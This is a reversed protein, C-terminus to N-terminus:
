YVKDPIFWFRVALIGREGLSRYLAGLRKEQRNLLGKANVEAGSLV